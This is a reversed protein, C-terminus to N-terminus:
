KLVRDRYGELKLLLETADDRTALGDIPCLKNPTAGVVTWRRNRMRFLQGVYADGLWMSYTFENMRKYRCDLVKDGVIVSFM